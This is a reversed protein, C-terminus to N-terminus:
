RAASHSRRAGTRKAQREVGAMEIRGESGSERVDLRRASTVSHGTVAPPCRALGCLTLPSDADRLGPSSGEIASWRRTRYRPLRAHERLTELTFWSSARRRARAKRSSSHDRALSSRNALSPSRPPIFIPKFGGSSMSSASSTSTTQRATRLALSKGVLLAAALEEGCRGGAKACSDPLARFGHAIHTQRPAPDTSDSDPEGLSGVTITDCTAASGPCGKMRRGCRGSCPTRGPGSPWLCAGAPASCAALIAVLAEPCREWVVLSLKVIVLYGAPLPSSRTDPWEPCM